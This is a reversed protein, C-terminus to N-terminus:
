GCIEPNKYFIFLRSGIELVDYDKLHVIEDKKILIGNVLIFSGEVHIYFEFDTSLTLKCHNRSVKSSIEHNSSIDIDCNTKPSKRGIITTTKNIPYNRDQGILIALTNKEFNTKSNELIQQIGFKETSKDKSNAINDLIKNIRETLNEQNGPFESLPMALINKRVDEM